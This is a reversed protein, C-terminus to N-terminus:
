RVAVLATGREVAKRRAAAHEPSGRLSALLPCHDLWEVDILSDDAALQLARLADGRREFHLWLETAMQFRLTRLRASAPLPTEEYTRAVEEPSLEGIFARAFLGPQLRSLKRAQPDVIEALKGVTAVDGRWACTRIRMVLVPFANGNGRRAQEEFIRDHADWDAHLAHWRAISMSALSNVPDLEDALRCHRMGRDIAGMELFLGGIYEHAEAFMPALDIARELEERAHAYDGLQLALNAAAFRTDALDPAVEMAHSVADKAATVWTDADRVFHARTSALAYAAHAPGFTPALEIARQLEDLGTKATTFAGWRTRRRGSLYLDIAEPPADGRSAIVTLELRLQEAVRAAISEGIALADQFRGEFRESHLQAGEADLLRVTVGLTRDAGADVLQVLGDVVASAGLAHAVTRPDRDTKYRATSGTGVVRLSRVRTLADVLEEALADGLYDRDAPGRYRFPLVAITRMSAARSSVGTPVDRARVTASVDRSVEDAVVLDVIPAPSGDAHLARMTAPVVTGEAIEISGLARAVEDATAPRAARDSRLCRSLVAALAKPLVDLSADLARPDAFKGTCLELVLMGLAWLDTRPDIKGAVAQEPAMYRPTGIAGLTLGSEEGLAHAIGFDVMVVRGTADELLVNTPKLDRHVVGAGHAASLGNCLDVGIGIARGIPLAGARMKERLTTGEVCEMTLYLMGEHEGLDFVRAVNKHTIRRALKVENRFRKTASPTAEVALTKLAVIEDLALDRARFVSGMGGRGLSREIVYRGAFTEGARPEV